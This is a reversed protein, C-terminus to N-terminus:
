KSCKAPASTSATTAAPPTPNPAYTIKVGLKQQGGTCGTSTILANKGKKVYLTSTLDKLASYLNPIPQQVEPPIGITLTKGSIKGHLVYNNSTTQSALHFLLDKKGVIATVNFTLETSGPGFPTLQAHATGSGAKAAKCIGPGNNVLDDDSKTCATLGKLSLKMTSPLTIAIKSATTKSEENNTVSLTLKTAKPKSKTGAKSPSVKATATPAPAPNQAYAVGAAGLALAAAGAAMFSKRL